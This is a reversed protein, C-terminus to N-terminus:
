NTLLRPVPVDRVPKYSLKYFKNGSYEPRAKLFKADESDAYQRFALQDVQTVDQAVQALQQNTAQLAVALGRLQAARQPDSALLRDVDAPTKMDAFDRRFQQELEAQQAVATWAKGPRSEM